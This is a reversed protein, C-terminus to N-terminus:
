SMNFKYSIVKQFVDNFIIKLRKHRDKEKYELLLEPHEEIKLAYKLMVVSLEYKHINANLIDELPLEM